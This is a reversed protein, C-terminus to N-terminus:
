KNIAALSFIAYDFYWPAFREQQFLMVRRQTAGSQGTSVIITAQPPFSCRDQACNGAPAFAIPNNSTTYFVRARTLMLIRGTGLGAEDLGTLTAQCAFKRNTGLSTNTTTDTCGTFKGQVLNDTGPPAFGNSQARSSDQDFYFPKRKIEGNQLYVVSVEIAPDASVDANGWYVDMKAQDYYVSAADPATAPDALWAQVVEEKAVPPLEFIQNRGPVLGSTDILANSQNQATFDVGTPLSGQSLQDLAQEIGAEAASFARSSEEVKTSTSVNSISRQIVSLGVGLGITIVLLLILVVQGSQFKKTMSKNNM